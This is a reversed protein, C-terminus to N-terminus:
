TVPAVPSSTVASTANKIRRSFKLAFNEAASPKNDTRSSFKDCCVHCGARAQNHGHHNCLKTGNPKFTFTEENESINLKIIGAVVDIM